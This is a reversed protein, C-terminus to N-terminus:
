GEFGNWHTVEELPLRATSHAAASAKGLSILMVPEYREPISFLERLKDPLFGGMPVTDYGKAKAALMLQMSVLGGDVLAIEKLKEVPMSSYGDRSRKAMAAGVEATIYGAAVAQENIKDANRYAEIDGLVVITASAEAVQQQNYAIPLLQQKLEQDTIVIFRWPQLNSSSPALIADGLIEQIEEASIIWSPDYKRVSHRERIVKNFAAETKLEVTM